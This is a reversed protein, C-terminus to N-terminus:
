KPRCTSIVNLLDNVKFFFVIAKTFFHPKDKKNEMYEANMKMFRNEKEIFVRLYCAGKIFYIFVLCGLLTFLHANNNRTDSSEADVESHINTNQTTRHKLKFLTRTQIVGYEPM